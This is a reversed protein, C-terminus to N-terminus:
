RFRNLDSLCNVSWKRNVSFWHLSVLWDIHVLLCARFDFRKLTTRYYIDISNRTMNQASLESDEMKYPFETAPRYLLIKCGGFEKLKMCNKGAAVFNPWPLTKVPMQSETWLPPDTETCAPIGAGGGPGSVWRGLGPLGRGPGSVGGSAFALM